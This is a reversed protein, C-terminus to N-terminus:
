NFSATVNSELPPNADLVYKEVTEVFTRIDDPNSFASKPILYRSTLRLTIVIYNATEKIHQVAKWSIINRNVHTTETFGDDTLQITHECYLGNEGTAKKASRRFSWKGMTMLGAYYIIWIVLAIGARPLINPSDVRISGDNKFAAYVALLIDGFVFLALLVGMFVGNYVYISIEKASEKSYRFLDDPTIEYTIEMSTPRDM